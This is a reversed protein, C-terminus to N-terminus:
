AAPVPTKDAREVLANLRAMEEGSLMITVSDANRAQEILNTLFKQDADRLGRIGNRSAAMNWARLGYVADMIATAKVCHDPMRRWSVPRLVVCGGETECKDITPMNDEM